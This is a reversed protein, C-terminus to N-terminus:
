SIQLDTIFGSELLLNSRSPFYRQPWIEVNSLKDKIALEVKKFQKEIKQEQEMKKKLGIQLRNVAHKACYLFLKSIMLLSVLRSKKYLKM